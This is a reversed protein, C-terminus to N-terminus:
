DQLIGGSFSNPDLSNVNIDNQIGKNFFRDVLLDYIIEDQLENNESAEIPRALNFLLFGMLLISVWRKKM